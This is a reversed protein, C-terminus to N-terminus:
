QYVNIWELKTKGERQLLLDESGKLYKEYFNIQTLFPFFVRSTQLNSGRHVMIELVTLKSCVIEFGFVM